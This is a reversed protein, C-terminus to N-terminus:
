DNTVMGRGGEGGGCVCMEGVHFLPFNSKGELLARSYVRCQLCLCSTFDGSNSRIVAPFYNDTLYDM